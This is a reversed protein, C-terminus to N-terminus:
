KDKKPQLSARLSGAEVAVYSALCEVLSSRQMCPLVPQNTSAM